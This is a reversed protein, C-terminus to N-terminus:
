MHRPMAWSTLPQGRVVSSRTRALTLGYIIQPLCLPVPIPRRLIIRNETNNWRPEGCEHNIQPVFMFGTPSRLEFVIEGRRCSCSCCENFVHSPPFSLRDRYSLSCFRWQRKSPVSGWSFVTDWWLRFIHNSPAQSCLGLLIYTGLLPFILVFNGSCYKYRLHFALVFNGSSYKYV